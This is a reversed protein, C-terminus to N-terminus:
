ALDGITLLVTQDKRFGWHTEAEDTGRRANYTCTYRFVAGAVKPTGRTLDDFVLSLLNVITSM